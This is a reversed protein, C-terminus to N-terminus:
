LYVDKREKRTKLHELCNGALTEMQQRPAFSERLTKEVALGIALLSEEKYPPAVLQLGIPMGNADLGIPLTLACWGFLNVVATNRLAMMNAKHYQEIDAIDEMAPPSIPVTPTMLVDCNSFAQLAAQGYLPLLRRRRLYEDSTMGEAGQVRHRVTPDLRDIRDPFHDLMFSRLEPAALGGEYFIALVEECGVLTLDIFQAGCSNLAALANKVTAVICPDADDWFLNAPIGIRLASLEVPKLMTMSGPELAAFAFAVDEVTRCMLGPTDLSSSLPVIGTTSWRGYTLKLGVQGTMSAPIRVSGATDTCLALFASGQMLSVGSGSSSGGPTRPSDGSWPNLPTGWHANFGLGGFAFEVTHTKGVVIALQRQLASVVQGPRQWEQSLASSTGAYIPFGPVGYVDKVSVPIGMLPGLDIGSQLLTDAAEAQRATTEGGWTHYANLRDESSLYKETAAAILEQSSVRNERLSCAMQSLSLPTPSM